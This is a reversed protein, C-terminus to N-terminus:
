KARRLAQLSHRGLKARVDTAVVHSLDALQKSQIANIEGIAQLTDSDGMCKNKFEVAEDLDLM